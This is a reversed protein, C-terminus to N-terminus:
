GLLGGRELVWFSATVAIAVSFPIAVARRYWDRRMAWGVALFCGLVVTVQALEVGVNFAVLALGFHEQPLGIERLVGAFGLGHLLGFAFVLLPRWPHLRATFLNEVAVYAISAAILTEVPRSPLLVTGTAGLGLTITHALTFASVQWLLPKLRPSLLFLGVVFLIHDLGLPLVHVFGVRLYNALVEGAGRRAGEVAFPQSANGATVYESAAIEGGESLRIVSHGIGPDLRWAVSEAGAPLRGALTVESYRALSLDPAAPIALATVELPVPAGNQDTLSVGDLFRDEFGAFARRLEEPGLARLRDYASANPSDSTDVHDPGIGALVAELNLALGLEVGGELGVALTAIAPRIEHAAAARPLAAALLVLLAALLRTAAQRALAASM